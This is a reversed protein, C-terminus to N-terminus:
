TSGSYMELIIETQLGDPTHTSRDSDPTHELTRRSEPTYRDSYTLGFYKSGLRSSTQLVDSTRGFHTSLRSAISRLMGTRLIDIRIQLVRSTRKSNPTYRDSYTLGFYTSGLRSYTRLVDSTRRVYLPIAHAAASHSHMEGVQTSEAVARTSDSSLLHYSAAALLRGRRVSSSLRHRGPAAGM